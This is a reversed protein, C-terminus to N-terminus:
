NVIITITDTGTLGDNDTVTLTVTYTGPNRYTHLVRHNVSTTGDGFDWLYSSITGDSDYSQDGYFRNRVPATGEYTEATAIAVPATGEIPDTATISMTTSSTAGENDTVTLTVLYTGAVTYTHNAIVGSATTEDGFNWDYSVISGDSDSSSSADFNVVLDIEGASVNSTMSATPAYNFNPDLATITVSETTSAGENDTATVVATYEGFDNYVHNLQVATSQTAVQGDGFDWDYSVISGNPDYSGTLDFNVDLPADGTTPNTSLMVVPSANGNGETAFYVGNFKVSDGLSSFNVVFELKYFPYSQAVQTTEIANTWSMNPIDYDQHQFAKWVFTWEGDISDSGYVNVDFVNPNAQIWWMSYHLTTDNPNAEVITSTVAYEFPVLLGGFSSTSAKRTHGKFLDPTPQNEKTSFTWNADDEWHVSSQVEPNNPDRFWPNLVLNDEPLPGVTNVTALAPAAFRLFAVSFVTLIFSFFLSKKMNM